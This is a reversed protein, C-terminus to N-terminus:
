RRLLQDLEKKAENSNLSAGELLRAAAKANSIRVIGDVDSFFKADMIVKDTCNSCSEAVARLFAYQVGYAGLETDDCAAVELHDLEPIRYASMGIVFHYPSPCWTHPWGGRALHRAEHIVIGLRGVQPISSSIYGKSLFMVGDSAAAMVGEPPNDLWSINKVLGTIYNEIGLSGSTGFFREFLPTRARFQLLSVNDIDVKFLEVARIFQLTSQDGAFVPSWQAVGIWVGIMAILILFKKM